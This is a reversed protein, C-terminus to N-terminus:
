EDYRSKFRNKKACQTRKMYTPFRIKLLLVTCSLGGKINISYTKKHEVLCSPCWLCTVKSPKSVFSPSLRKPSQLSLRLSDMLDFLTVIVTSCWFNYNIVPWIKWPIDINKECHLFIQYKDYELGSVTLIIQPPPAALIHISAIFLWVDLAISRIMFIKFTHNYVVNLPTYNIILCLFNAYTHIYHINSIKCYSDYNNLLKFSHSVSTIRLITM